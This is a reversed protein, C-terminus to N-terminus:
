SGAQDAGFKLASLTKASLGTKQSADYIASGFEAANKSMTFLAAGAVTAGATIASIGAVTAKSWTEIGNRLSTFQEASLGASAAFKELGTAGSKADKELQKVEKRFQELTGLADKGDAKIHFLLGASESGAM